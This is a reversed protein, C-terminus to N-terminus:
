WRAFAAVGERQLRVALADDDGGERRFEEIVAEAYGGDHPLPREVKGHDAFALLTRDPLGNITSSPAPDHGALGKELNAARANILKVETQRLSVAAFLVALFGWENVLESLGYVVGILGLGLFDDM